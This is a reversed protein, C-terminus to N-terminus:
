NALRLVVEDGEPTLRWAILDDGADDPKSFVGKAATISYNMNDFRCQVARASIRQFPLDTGAAATLDLFWVAEDAGAAAKGGAHAGGVVKMRISREDLDMVLTGGDGFRKVNVPSMEDSSEIFDQIAFAFFFWPGMLIRIAM